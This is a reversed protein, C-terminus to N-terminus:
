YIVGKRFSLLAAHASIAAKQRSISYEMRCFNRFNEASECDSIVLLFRAAVGGFYLRNKQCGRRCAAGLRERAVPM